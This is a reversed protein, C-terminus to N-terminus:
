CDEDSPRDPHWEGEFCHRLEHLLCIPYERLMVICTNSKHNYVSIGLVGPKLPIDTKIIVNVNHRIPVPPHYACGAVIMTSGVLAIALNTM